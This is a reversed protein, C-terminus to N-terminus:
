TVAPSRARATAKGAEQWGQIERLPAGSSGRGFDADGHLLGPESAFVSGSSGVYWRLPAAVEDDHFFVLGLNVAVIAIMLGLWFGSLWYDLLLCGAGGTGGFVYVNLVLLWDAFSCRGWPRKLAEM